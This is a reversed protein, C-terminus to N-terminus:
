KTAKISTNVARIRRIMVCAVERIRGSKMAQAAIIPVESLIQHAVPAPAVGPQGQVAQAGDHVVAGGGRVADCRAIHPEVVRQHPFDAANRM